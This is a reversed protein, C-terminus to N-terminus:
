LQSICERVFGSFHASAKFNVLREKKGEGEGQQSGGFFATPAWIISSNASPSFHFLSVTDARGSEIEQTPTGEQVRM